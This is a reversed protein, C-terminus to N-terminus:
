KKGVFKKFPEPVNSKLFSVCTLLKVFVLQVVVLKISGLQFCLYDAGDNIEVM